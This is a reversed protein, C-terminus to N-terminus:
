PIGEGDDNDKLVEGLRRRKEIEVDAGINGILSRTVIGLSKDLAVRAVGTILFSIFLEPLVELGKVGEVEAEVLVGALKRIAVEESIVHTGM